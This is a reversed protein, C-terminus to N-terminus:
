ERWACLSLLEATGTFDKKRIENYEVTTRGFSVIYCSIRVLDSFLSIFIIKSKCTEQSSVNM